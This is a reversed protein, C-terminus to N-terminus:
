EDALELVVPTHDSPREWTRPIRDITV